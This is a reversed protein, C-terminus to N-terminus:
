GPPAEGGQAAGGEQSRELLRELSEFGFDIQFSEQYLDLKVRARGRRRDVKQIYGELGKLPGILVRIRNNEDFVVMSRDVVEGFSLFHMLLQRDRGAVPEVRDNERALFRIFGPVQRIAWYIEPTVEATEVILYGPFIPAESNHWTGQRRIRLSRRPWLLRLPLDRLRARALKLFREERRTFVQLVFHPM